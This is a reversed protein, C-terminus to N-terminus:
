APMCPPQLLAFGQHYFTVESTPPIYITKFPQQSSQLSCSTIMVRSNSPIVVDDYAGPQGSWGWTTADEWLKVDPLLHPCVNGDYTPRNPSYTCWSSQVLPAPYAYPDIGASAARIDGANM